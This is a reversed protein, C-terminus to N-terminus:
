RENALANYKKYDIKFNDLYDISDVSNKEEKIVEKNEYILKDSNDSDVIKVHATLKRNVIYQQKSEFSVGYKFNVDLYDIISSIYQMGEELYDKNYYQKDNLYVKYDIGAKEVYKIEDITTISQSQKYFFLCLVGLILVLIALLIENKKKM